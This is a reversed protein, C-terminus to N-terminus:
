LSASKVMLEADAVCQQIVIEPLEEGADALLLVVDIRATALDVAARTGPRAVGAGALPEYRQYAARLRANTVDSTRHEEAATVWAATAPHDNMQKSSSM